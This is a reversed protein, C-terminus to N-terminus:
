EVIIDPQCTYTTLLLHSGVPCPDCISTDHIARTGAPCGEFTCALPSTVGNVNVTPRQGVWRDPCIPAFTIPDRTHNAFVECRACWADGHVTMVDNLAALVNDERLLPGRAFIRQM